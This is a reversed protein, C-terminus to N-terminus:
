IGTDWNKYIQISHHRLNIPHNSVVWIQVFKITVQDFPSCLKTVSKFYPFSQVVYILINEKSSKKYYFIIYKRVMCQCPSNNSVKFVTKPLRYLLAITELSYHMARYINQFCQNKLILKINIILKEFCFFELYWIQLYENASNRPM